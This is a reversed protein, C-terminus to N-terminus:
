DAKSHAASEGGMRGRLQRRRASSKDARCWCRAYHYAIMCGPIFIAFAQQKPALSQSGTANLRTNEGHHMTLLCNPWELADLVQVMVHGKRKANTPGQYPRM